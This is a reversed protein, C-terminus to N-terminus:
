SVNWWWTMKERELISDISFKSFKRGNVVPPVVNNNQKNKGRAIGNGHNGQSIVDGTGPPSQSSPGSITVAEGEMSSLTATFASHSTWTFHDSNEAKLTGDGASHSRVGVLSSQLLGCVLQQHYSAAASLLCNQQQQHLLSQKQQSEELQQRYQASTYLWNHQQHERPKHQHHQPTHYSGEQGQQQHSSNSTAAGPPHIIGGAAMHHPLWSTGIYETSNRLIRNISSVSPLNAEDCVKQALLLDRIEWAFFSPNEHKCRLIQQVLYPTSIQILYLAASFLCPLLYCFIDLKNNIRKRM